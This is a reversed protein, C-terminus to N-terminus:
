KIKACHGNGVRRNKQRIESVIKSLGMKVWKGNTRPHHFVEALVLHRQRFTLLLPVCERGSVAAISAVM